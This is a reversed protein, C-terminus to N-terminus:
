AIVSDLNKFPVLLLFVFSQAILLFEQGVAHIIDIYQPM